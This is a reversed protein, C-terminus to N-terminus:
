GDRLTRLLATWAAPPVALTGRAPAKSDRVAVWSNRTMRCEVCQGHTDGSYSSRHWSQGARIM